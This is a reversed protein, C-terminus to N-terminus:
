SNIGAFALNLNTEGGKAENLCSTSTGELWMRVTIVLDTDAVEGLYQKELTTSDATNVDTYNSYHYHALSNEKATTLANGTVTGSSMYVLSDEATTDNPNWYATLTSGTLFAVRMAKVALDNKAQQASAGEGTATAAVLTSGTNIYVKMKNTAPNTNGNHFSIGFEVYYSVTASNAVATYTDNVFKWKDAANTSDATLKPKYFTVGDGSIDTVKGGDTANTIALSNTYADTAPNNFGAGVAPASYKLTLDGSTTYATAKQYTVTATRTSTFWAFTSTAAAGATVALLSSLAVILKSRTKM